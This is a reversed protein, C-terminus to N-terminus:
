IKMATSRKSYCKERMKRFREGKREREVERERETDTERERKRERETETESEVESGIPREPYSENPSTYEERLSTM